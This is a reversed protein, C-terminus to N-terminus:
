NVGGASRTPVASEWLGWHYEQVTKLGDRKVKVISTEPIVAMVEGYHSGWKVRQLSERFHTTMRVRDGVKFPITMGTGLFGGGM